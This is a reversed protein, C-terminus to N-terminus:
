GQEAQTTNQQEIREMYIARLTRSGDWSTACDDIVRGKGACDHMWADRGMRYYDPETPQTVVSFITIATVGLLAILLGGAAAPHLQGLIGSPFSFM